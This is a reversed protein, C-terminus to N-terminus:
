EAKNGPRKTEDVREGYAPADHTIAHDVNLEPEVPISEPAGQTASSDADADVVRTVTQRHLAVITGPSIELHVKNNEEDIDVVKGYLGFNTMVNAGAVVKKQLEQADRSRKRSNRFMFFILVALIVLMGITLFDM